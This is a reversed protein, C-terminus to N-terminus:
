EAAEVLREELQGVPIEPDPERESGPRGDDLVDEDREDDVGSLMSSTSRRSTKRSSSRRASFCRSAALRAPTVISRARKARHAAEAVQARTTLASSGAGVQPPGVSRRVDNSGSAREHARRDEPSHAGRAPDQDAGDDTALIACGATGRPQVAVHSLWSALATGTAGLLAGRVRIDARYPRAAAPRHAPVVPEYSGTVGVEFSAVRAAEAVRTDAKGHPYAIASLPGGAATELERRGDVLAAHLSNDDLKTLVDHRLTHFGISFGRAVLAQVDDRRVGREETGTTETALRAEIGAREEPAMAEIRAATEHVDGGPVPLAATRGEDVARQLRQFWFAHPHDLSAGTLFFTAPIGHRELLPAAHELHSALDDDFTIAVPFRAGRLRQEVATLLDEPRVIRYCSRLHRLQADLQEVAHAPVLEREPDGRTEALAHYVLVIGARRRSASCAAFGGRRSAHSALQADRM